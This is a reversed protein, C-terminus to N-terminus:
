RRRRLLAIAGIGVLLASSPEPVPSSAGVVDLERWVFNGNSSNTAITTVRLAQIGTINLDTVGVKSAGGASGTFPQYDVTLANVFAGGGVAQVALTWAQNGFNANSWAAVSLLSTIDYGTGNAGGGFIYTASAMPNPWAGEVSGAVGFSRGHVGDNLEPLSAGNSTNWTGSVVGAATAFGSPAVGNLLDSGSIDAAYALETASSVQSVTGSYGNFFSVAAGANGGAIFSIALVSSVVTSNKM